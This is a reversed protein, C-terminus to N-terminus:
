LFRLYEYPINEVPIEQGNLTLSGTMDVYQYASDMNIQLNNYYVEYSQGDVMYNIPGGNYTLQVAPASTNANYSYILDFSGTMTFNAASYSFSNFTIALNGTSTSGAQPNSIDVNACIDGSINVSGQGQFNPLTEASGTINVPQCTQIALVSFSYLLFILSLFLQKLRLHYKMFLRKFYILIELYPTEM